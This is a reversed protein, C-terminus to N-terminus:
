ATANGQGDVAPPLDRVRERLDDVGAATTHTLVADLRTLRARSTSRLRAAPIRSLVDLARQAADAPRAPAEALALVLTAAAWGPTAVACASASAEARAAAKETRGLAIHAEAEHLAFEAADFGFRGPAWGRPDAELERAAAALAEDAEDARGQGALAPLRAWAHLQARVLGGPAHTLGREAHVLATDHDGASRAVMSQAGHAWALLRAEGTRTGYTAATALHVRAGPSDGLHFALNGLLASLWGVSRRLGAATDEAVGPGSLPASLMRRVARVEAFLTHPPHKGYGLAYHEVAAEALDSVAPSGSPDALLALQLSERVAPLGAATSMPEVERLLDTAEPRGYRFAIERLLRDTRGDGLRGLGLQIPRAGYARCLMRTYEEGPWEDGNHEWRCLMSESPGPPLLGDTRYLAAIRAVTGARSWGLALRWAELASVEPLATRIATVTRETGHGRERCRVRIRDAERKITARRSRTVAAM